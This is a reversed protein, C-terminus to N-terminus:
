IIIKMFLITPKTDDFFKNRAWVNNLLRNTSINKKSFFKEILVATINETKSFSEIAILEKLLLVAENTLEM